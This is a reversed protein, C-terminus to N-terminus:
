QKIINIGTIDAGTVKNGDYDYVNVTYNVTNEGDLISSCGYADWLAEKNAPILGETHYIEANDKYM